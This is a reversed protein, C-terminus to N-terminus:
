VIWSFPELNLLCFLFIGVHLHEETVLIPIPHTYHLNIRLKGHLEAATRMHLIGPVDGEKLDYGFGADCAANAADLRHRSISQGVIDALAEIFDSFKVLVNLPEHFFLCIELPLEAQPLAATPRLTGREAPQRDEGLPDIGTGDRRDFCGERFAFRRQLTGRFTRM